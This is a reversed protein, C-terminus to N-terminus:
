RSYAASHAASIRQLIDSHKEFRALAYGCLMDVMFTHAILNWLREVRLVEAMRREAFLRPPCERCVAVRPDLKSKAAKAAPEILGRAGDFLRAPDGMENLMVASLTEAVDLSVLDGRKIADSVDIGQARLGQLVAARHPETAVLIAAKDARLTAAISDTFSEQLVADDSCLQVEHRIPPKGLTVQGFGGRVVGSVFYQDRRVAQIARLLDRGARLKHVYGVGGCGLAAEVFEFSFEVSMFLIRARPVLQRIRRAAQLGNLKPLHIDLLILDPQLEEAKQLAELGDSAQGIVQYEPRQALASCMSQRFPESDEVVLISLAPHTPVKKSRVRFRDPM